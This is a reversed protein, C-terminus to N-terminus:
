VHARGIEYNPRAVVIRDGQGLLTTAVIFLAAAAGPVLLVDDSTLREDDAAVIARVGPHGVHDGYMLVLDDLSAHLDRLHMDAVSSEALNCRIREYGLQETLAARGDPGPPVAPVRVTWTAQGGRARKPWRDTRGGKYQITVVGDRLRFQTGLQCVQQQNLPLWVFVNM